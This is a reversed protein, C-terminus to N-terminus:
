RQTHVFLNDRELRVEGGGDAVELGVGAVGSSRRLVVRVLIGVEYKEGQVAAGHQAPQVDQSVPQTCTAILQHKRIVVDANARRRGPEREVYGAGDVGGISEVQAAYNEVVARGRRVVCEQSEGAVARVGAGAVRG